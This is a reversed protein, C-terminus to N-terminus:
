IAEGVKIMLTVTEGNGLPITMQYLGPPLLATDLRLVYRNISEEWTASLAGQYTTGDTEAILTVTNWATEYVSAFTLPVIMPFIEGQQVIFLPPAGPQGACEIVAIDVVATSFGGFPDAFRLTLVDRGTFGTAPTYVLTIMASEIEKTTAGHVEYTVDGLDGSIVGHMPAAVISFVFPIEGPNDPEVWLDTTKVDFSVATDVCTTLYIDDMVTQRVVELYVKATASVNGCADIIRYTFEDPGIYGHYPAYRTSSGGNCDGNDVEIMVTGYEPPDVIDHIWMTGCCGPCTECTGCLDFQHPCNECSCNDADNALVDIRVPTNERLILRYVGLEDLRVEVLPDIVASKDMSIDQRPDDRPVPDVEDYVHGTENQDNEDAMSEVPTADNGCCDTAEIRIRVIAPCNTLCRVPVVGSIDVRGQGNQTITVDRAQNFDITLNNTPNTPTITIGGPTICCNDTVNATFHVETECCNNVLVHQEVVLDNIVPITTDIINVTDTLQIANNGCCDTADIAVSLVAPCGTLASVTIDGSVLVDDGVQVVTVDHALTANTVSIDVSVNGALICCNDTVTAQIPLTITCTDSSVVEPGAPLETDWFIVPILTDTVDGTLVSGTVDVQGQGNPVKDIVPVGLTANGTPLTVVVTVAGPTVCCNDTVTASFTVTAECNADVTEDSVTLGSIVPILTDTVDGTDSAQSADNSCCDTVDITVQV